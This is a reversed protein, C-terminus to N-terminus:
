RRVKAARIKNQQYVNPPVESRELEDGSLQLDHMMQMIEREKKLDQKNVPVNQVDLAVPPPPIANGNPIVPPPAFKLNALSGYSRSRHEQRISYSFARENLHGKRRYIGTSNYVSSDAEDDDDDDDVHAASEHPSTLSHGDILPPPPPIASSSSSHKKNSSKENKKKTKKKKKMKKDDDGGGNLSAFAAYQQMLYAEHPFHGPQYSAVPSMPRASPMYIPEESATMMPIPMPQFKSSKKGTPIFMTAAAPGNGPIPFFNIPGAGGAQPPVPVLLGPPPQHQHHKKNTNYSGASLRRPPHPLTTPVMLVPQAPPPPIPAGGGGHPPHHHHHFGNMSAPRLGGNSYISGASPYCKM